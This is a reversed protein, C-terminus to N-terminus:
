SNKGYGDELKKGVVFDFSLRGAGQVLLGLLLVIYLFESTSFLDVIGELESSKATQVAVAMIVILPLSALRTGLGILVLVGAILEFGAVLPALVGAMPIGLDTFYNSVRELNQIKGWGSSAFVVGVVIRALLPPFPLIPKQIKEFLFKIKKLM